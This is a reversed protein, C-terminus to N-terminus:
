WIGSDGGGGGGDHDGDVVNCYDDECNCLDYKESLSVQGAEVCFIRRPRRFAKELTNMMLMMMLTMMMM